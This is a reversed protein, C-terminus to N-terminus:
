CTSIGAFGSGAVVVMVMALGAMAETVAAEMAKTTSFTEAYLCIM